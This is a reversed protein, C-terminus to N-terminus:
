NGDTEDRWDEGDSRAARRLQEDHAKEHLRRTQDDRDTVVSVVVGAVESLTFAHPSKAGSFVIAAPRDAAPLRMADKYEEVCRLAEGETAFRFSLCSGFGRGFVSVIFGVADAKAGDYDKWDRKGNRM